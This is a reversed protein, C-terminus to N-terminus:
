VYSFTTGNKVAHISGSGVGFVAAIHANKHGRAIMHRIDLVDVPTLVRRAHGARNPLRSLRIEDLANDKCTGFALNEVTNNLKDGDLHRTVIGSAPVGFFALAVLRHVPKTRKRYEGGVFMTVSPYRTQPNIHQSKIKGSRSSRVRGHDSADYGDFGPIKRWEENNNEM